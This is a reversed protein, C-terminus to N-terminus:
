EPEIWGQREFRARLEKGIATATRKAAGEIKDSGTYEQTVKVAGGVVLGIPNATAVVVALPVILGPTKGPGAEFDASAVQRLGNATAEYGKVVTNLDAGGSGFGLMVRKAASGTDITQFYGKLVLDGPVAQQDAARAAPLGMARIEEVLQQAVAAGLQDGMETEKPDQAGETGAYPVGLDPDASIEAPTAAFNYVVIHAPRAYKQTSPATAQTMNATACGSAITAVLLAIAVTTSTTTTRM